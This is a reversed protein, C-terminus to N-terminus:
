SCITKDYKSDILIINPTLIVMKDILVKNYSIEHRKEYVGNFSM